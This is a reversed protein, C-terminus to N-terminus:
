ASRAIALVASFVEAYKDCSRAGMRIIVFRVDDGPQISNSQDHLSMWDSVRSHHVAGLNVRRQGHLLIPLLQNQEEAKISSDPYEAMSKHKSFIM